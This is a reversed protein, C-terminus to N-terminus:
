ERGRLAARIRELTELYPKRREDSEAEERVIAWRTTVIGQIVWWDAEPLTVTRPVEMKELQTM